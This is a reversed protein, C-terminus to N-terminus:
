SEADPKEGQGADDGGNGTTKRLNEVTYYLERIESDLVNAESAAVDDDQVTKDTDVSLRGESSALQFVHLSKAQTEEPVHLATIITPPSSDDKQPCM